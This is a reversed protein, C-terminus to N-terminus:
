KAGKNRKGAGRLAKMEDLTKQQDANLLPRIKDKTTNWLDGMKTMKERREITTDQRLKAMAEGTESLIPTIKTKQDDTLALKDMMQSLPNNDNGRKTKAVDYATQFVPLQGATLVAKIEALEKAEIEELKAKTDASPKPRDGPTTAAPDPQMAKRLARREDSYKKAIVAIQDKQTASLEAAKLGAMLPTAARNAAGPKGAGQAYAADTIGVLTGLLVALTAGM